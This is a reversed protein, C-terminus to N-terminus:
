RLETALDEPQTNVAQEKSANESKLTTVDFGLVTISPYQTEFNKVAALVSEGLQRKAIQFQTLMDM